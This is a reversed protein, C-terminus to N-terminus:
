RWELSEVSMAYWSSWGLSWEQSVWRSLSLKFRWSQAMGGMPEIVHVALFGISM